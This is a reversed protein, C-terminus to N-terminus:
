KSPIAWNPSLSVRSSIKALPTVWPPASFRGAHESLSTVSPSIHLSSPM